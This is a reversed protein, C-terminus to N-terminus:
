RTFTKMKDEAKKKQSQIHRELGVSEYSVVLRPFLSRHARFVIWHDSQIHSVRFNLRSNSRQFPNTTKKLM